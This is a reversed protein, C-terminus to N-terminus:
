RHGDSGSLTGRSLSDEVPHVTLSIPSTCGIWDSGTIQCRAHHRSIQYQSVEKQETVPVPRLMSVELTTGADEGTSPKPFAKVVEADLIEYIPGALTKCCDYFFSAFMFKYHDTSVQKGLCSIIEPGPPKTMKTTQPPRGLTSMVHLAIHELILYDFRSGRSVSTPMIIM